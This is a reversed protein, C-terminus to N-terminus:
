AKDASDTTLLTDAGASAGDTRRNQLKSINVSLKQYFEPNHFRSFRM